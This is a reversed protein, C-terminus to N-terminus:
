TVTKRRMKGIEVGESRYNLGARVTPLRGLFGEAGARRRFARHRELRGRPMSRAPNRDGRVWIHGAIRCARSVLRYGDPEFFQSGNHTLHLRCKVKRLMCRVGAALLDATATAEM